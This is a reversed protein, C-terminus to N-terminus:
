PGDERQWGTDALDTMRMVDLVPIEGAIERLGAILDESRMRRGRIDFPNVTLALLEPRADVLIRHGNREARALGELSLFLKTPDTVCITLPQKRTTIIRELVGDTIAGPLCIAVAEKPVFFETQFTSNMELKMCTQDQTVMVARADQRCQNMAQKLVPDQLVPTQFKRIWIRTHAVVGQVNMAVVAGTALVVGDCVSPHALAIRDFAGDSVFLDPPHPADAMWSQIMRLHEIQRVGALVVTGDRIVEAIFVNGFPSAIGTDALVCLEATGEQLLDKASAVLAGVPAYLEPKPVGLIADRAEGDVGISMIGVRQKRQKAEELVRNMATTKGAHKAVGAFAISRVAPHRELIQSLLMDEM